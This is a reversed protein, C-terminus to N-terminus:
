KALCPLEGQAPPRRRVFPLSAVPVPTAGPSTDAQWLHSGLRHASSRRMAPKIILQGASEAWRMVYKYRTTTIHMRDCIVARPQGQNYLVAFTAIESEGITRKTYARIPENTLTDEAFTALEEPTLPRGTMVDCHQEIRKAYLNIRETRPLLRTENLVRTMRESEM